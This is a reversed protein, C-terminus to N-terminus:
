IVEFHDENKRKTERVEEVKAPSFNKDIKYLKGDVVAYVVCTCRINKVSDIVKDYIDQEIMMASM